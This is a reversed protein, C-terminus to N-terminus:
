ILDQFILNWLKLNIIDKVNKVVYDPKNNL